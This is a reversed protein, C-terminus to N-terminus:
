AMVSHRQLIVDSASEARHFRHGQFADAQMALLAQYTEEDEVGEAVVELRMIKGISILAETLARDVPDSILARTFSGDIKIGDVRIRKLLDFSNYGTGVDDLWVLFGRQHLQDILHMETATMQLRDTETIEFRLIRNHIGSADLLALMGDVFTEDGISRASLNLSLYPQQRSSAPWGRAVAIVNLLMWQDIRTMWGMRQVAPMFAGPM